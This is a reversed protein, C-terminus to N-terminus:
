IGQLILAVIGGTARSDNPCASGAECMIAAEITDDSAFSYGVSGNPASADFRVSLSRDKPSHGPGPCIIQGRSSMEGGLCRAAYRTDM